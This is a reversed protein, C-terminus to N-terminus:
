TSVVTDVSNDPLPINEAGVALFELPFTLEKAREKAIKTLESSPELAYLKSINKYLALNYGPGVGIELVIGTALPVVEKRINVLGNAGMEKNLLQPVVKKKYWKFMKGTYM